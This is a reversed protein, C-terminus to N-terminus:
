PASNKLHASKTLIWDLYDRMKGKEHWIRLWVTGDSTEYSDYIYEVWQPHSMTYRFTRQGGTVRNTAHIPLKGKDNLEFWHADSRLHTGFLDDTLIHITSEEKLYVHTAPNLYLDYYSM